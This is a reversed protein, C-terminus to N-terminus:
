GSAQQGPEHRRSLQEVREGLERKFGLAMFLEAMLFIPAIFIQFLNDVLAPKRGEMAHGALQFVWGVVFLVAATIGTAPWPWAAIIGAVYLVVVTFAIMALGLPVDLILYYILVVAAFVMALTVDVGGVAVRAWSMAILLALMIMPVGIFHTLRNRWDRHYAKYFAMQEALSKM